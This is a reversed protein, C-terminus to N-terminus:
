CAESLLFKGYTKFNLPSYMLKHFKSHSVDRTVIDVLKMVSKEEPFAQSLKM